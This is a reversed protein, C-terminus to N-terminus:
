LQVHRLSEVWETKTLRRRLKVSAMGRRILRQRALFSRVGRVGPIVTLLRSLVSRM